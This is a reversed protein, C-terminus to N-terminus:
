IAAEVARREITRRALDESSFTQAEASSGLATLVLIVLLAHNILKPQM